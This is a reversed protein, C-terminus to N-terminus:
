VPEGKLLIELQSKSMPYPIWQHCRWCYPIKFTFVSTGKINARSVHLEDRGHVKDDFKHGLVRCTLDAM